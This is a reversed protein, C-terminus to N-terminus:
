KNSLKNIKKMPESAAVQGKIDMIQILIVEPLKLSGLKKKKKKTSKFGCHSSCNKNPLLAGQGFM